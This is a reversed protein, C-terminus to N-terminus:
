VLGMISYMYFGLYGAIMALYVLKVSKESFMHEIEWPLLIYGYLSYYIPLRGIFIGSTVMSVVYFGVSAISMNTCLNIVPDDAYKIFRLGILSLVSPVAYVLVRLINTGDDQFEQWDSVVNKYQTEALLTDLIDTFEGIFMVAVIVAIIFLITKKNWAQGQAIFIFPLVLLASGHFLAAFLVILVAPVYKKKLIYEFAFFTITVATFQRIGNFMWSIYDTSAIFLFFTVIYNSSYKRYVKILLAVQILALIIFYVNVNDSILNKIVASFLYFGKDKEITDMYSPINRLGSPIEQFMKMYAGTDGVYGRFGSWIVLPLYILFAWLPYYRQVKEGCVYETRQVKTCLGIMWAVAVWVLILYYNSM